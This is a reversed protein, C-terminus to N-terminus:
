LKIETGSALKWTVAQRWSNQNTRPRERTPNSQDERTPFTAKFELNQNLRAEFVLEKADAEMLPGRIRSPSPSTDMTPFEMDIPPQLSTNAITKPKGASRPLM